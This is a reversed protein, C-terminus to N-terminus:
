SIKDIKIFQHKSSNVKKTRIQSRKNTNWVLSPIGKLQLNHRETKFLLRGLGDTVTSKEQMDKLSVGGNKKEAGISFRGLRKVDYHRADWEM